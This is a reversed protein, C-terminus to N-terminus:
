YVQALLAQWRVIAAEMRATDAFGEALVSGRVTARTLHLAKSFIAVAEHLEQRMVPMEQPVERATSKRQRATVSSFMVASLVHGCFEIPPARFCAKTLEFGGTSTDQALLQNLEGLLLVSPWQKRPPESTVELGFDRLRVDDTLLVVRNEVEIQSQWLCAFDLTMLSRKSVQLEKSRKEHHEFLRMMQTHLKTELVELIGLNVCFQLVSSPDGAHFRALEALLMPDSKSWEALEEMVVDTIAFMVCQPEETPGTWSPLEREDTPICKMHGQECLNTLGRFRLLGDQRFLMQRVAGADLFTYLPVEVTPGEAAPQAAPATAVGNSTQELSPALAAAAAAVSPQQQSTTQHTGGKGAVSADTGEAHVEPSAEQWLSAAVQATADASNGHWDNAVREGAFSSNQNRYSSHLCVAPAPAGDRATWGDKSVSSCWSIQQDGLRHHILSWDICNHELRLWVPANGQSDKRGAIETNLPYQGSWAILELLSLAGRETMQNHSLHVEHVPLSTHALFQAVAWAGGDGIENRFLKLTQVVIDRSYLFEMLIQIANDDLGCRSFNLSIATLRPLTQGFREEFQGQMWAILEKVDNATLHDGEHDIKFASKDTWKISFRSKGVRSM